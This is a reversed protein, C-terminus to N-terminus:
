AYRRGKYAAAWEEFNGEKVADEAEKRAAICDNINHSKLLYYYKGKFTVYARWIHSNKIYCVGKTGSTNDKRIKRNVINSIQSKHICGCSKRKGEILSKSSVLATNGCDCKCEWIVGGNVRKETLRIAVLKGFRRGTIDKAKAM